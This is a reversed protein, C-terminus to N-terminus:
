INQLSLMAAYKVELSSISYGHKKLPLVSNQVINEGVKVKVVAAMDDILM